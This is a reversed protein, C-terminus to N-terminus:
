RRFADMARRGAQRLKGTTQQRRDGTVRGFRQRAWGRLAQAKNSIEWRLSM